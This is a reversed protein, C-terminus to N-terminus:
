SWDYEFRVMILLSPKKNPGHSQKNETTVRLM